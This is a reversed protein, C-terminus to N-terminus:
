KKCTNKETPICLKLYEDLDSFIIEDVSNFNQKSKEITRNIYAILFIILTIVILIAYLKLKYQSIM